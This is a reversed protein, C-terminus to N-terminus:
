KSFSGNFISRKFEEILPTAAPDLGRNKALHCATWDALILSNFIKLFLSDGALPLWEVPLGQKEYLAKTTAMRRATRPHDSSDALFLFHFKESLSGDFGTMENHNLEPFVNIFAPIKGTENFKIKWNYALPRNGGSSYIIPIKGNLKQALARGATELNEPRLTQALGTTEQLAEEEGMLKFFARLGFGLASRPPIGTDPLQVYPAQAAKALELLEGGVSIAATALKKSLATKFADITEETNGSYSSAIILYNKLEDGPLPPLGYDRHVLLPLDPQRIKILDAALQSGGMGAAVFQSFRRWRGVNEIKPEFAFQRAFNKIATEM